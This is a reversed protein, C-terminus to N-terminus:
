KKAGGFIVIDSGNPLLSCGRPESNVFEQDKVPVNVWKAQHLSYADLRGLDIYEIAHSATLSNFNVHQIGNFIFVHRNAVVTMSTNARM